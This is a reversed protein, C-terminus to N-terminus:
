LTEILRRMGETDADLLRLGFGPRRHHSEGRTTWWVFGSLKIAQGKRNRFAVDVPDGEDPISATGIFLGGESVNKIKGRARVSGTRFEAEISTLVRESPM